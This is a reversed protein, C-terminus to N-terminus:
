AIILRRGLEDNLSLGHPYKIFPANANAEAAAILGIPKDTEADGVVVNSSGMCSLYWRKRDRSLAIDEGVKCEPVSVVVKVDPFKSLDYVYLESHGLSTLYAKTADENFYIHHAVFDPPLPADKVIMNFTPSAPDVDIIALGERRIPQDAKSEYNLLALMEARAAVPTSAGLGLLGLIGFIKRTHTSKLM